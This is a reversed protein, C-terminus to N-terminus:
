ATPLNSRLRGCAGDYDPLYHTVDITLTKYVRM